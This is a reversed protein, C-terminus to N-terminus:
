GGWALLGRIEAKVAEAELSKRKDAYFKGALACALSMNRIEGREAQKRRDDM